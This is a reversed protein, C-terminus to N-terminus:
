YKIILSLIKIKGERIADFWSPTEELPIIKDLYRDWFPHELMELVAAKRSAYTESGLLKLPISSVQSSKISLRKYHFETGLLLSVPMDGYWSMEIIRGEVDMHDICYQLGESTATCHYALQFNRKQEHEQLVQFGLQRAYQLRYADKEMIFVKEIGKLKLWGAILGGILGFGVILVSENESPDGDWFANCATELNSFLTARLAPISQPLRHLHEPSVACIDQHPHMVHYLDGQDSNGVLSYGYKLPLNFDGAMYPVKMSSQLRPPVKGLSILRETGISILSYQAHILVQGPLTDIAQSKIESHYPDSHWLSKAVM